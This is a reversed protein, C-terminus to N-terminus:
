PMAVPAGFPFPVYVARPPRVKEVFERVLALVVTSLGLAELVRALASATHTCFPCTPTILVLDAGQEKLLPGLQSGITEATKESNAQAGTLSYFKDTLAGVPGDAALERLWDIPFVVNIDRMRLGRDFGISSQSQLLDSEVADGDIVRYTQDYKLFPADRRHHLGATTVLALRCQAVSGPPPTWPIDDNIPVPRMLLKNRQVEPLDSLRPM